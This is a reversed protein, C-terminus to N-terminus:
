KRRGTRYVIGRRLLRCFLESEWEGEYQWVMEVQEVMNKMRKGKGIPVSKPSNLLLFPFITEMPTRPETAFKRYDSETCPTPGGPWYVVWLCGSPPADLKIDYPFTPAHLQLTFECVGWGDRPSSAYAPRIDSLTGCPSLAVVLENM